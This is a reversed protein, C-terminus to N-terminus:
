KRSKETPPSGISPDHRTSFPATKSTVHPTDVVQNAAPGLEVPRTRLFARTFAAASACAYKTWADSRKLGVIDSIGRIALMPSRGRVARYVGASEMEIARLDRATLLWPILLEPDKVLRDSAAIPGATYAAAYPASGAGHHYALKDRLERQWDPPGYIQGESEWVVSPPLPLDATWSGLEDERGALNTVFAALAKDIPGGTVSYTPAQSIRRAEVTFDHIRTSVVVDGLKVDDSPPAGAIGVILVLRPALDDILDRAADQAEGNGQEVLRSVAIRYRKGDGADAYRLMYERNTGKHSGAKDPLAALVARFEDDRITLIGVDVKPTIAPYTTPTSPQTATAGVESPGSATITSAAVGYRRRVAELQIPSRVRCVGADDRVVGILELVAVDDDSRSFSVREDAALRRLIRNLGRDHVAHFVHPLNRDEVRVVQDVIDDITGGAALKEAVLQTFYPHGGTARHVEAARAALAPSGGAGLLEAVHDPTLDGLYMSDAVNRLPSNGRVALHMMEEGGAIIFALRQFAPMVFRDTFVSRVTAALWRATSDPLAGIEDILLGLRTPTSEAAVRLVRLLDAGDNAGPRGLQDAIREAVFRTCEKEGAGTAGQLNLFLLEYHKGFEQRARLMLTTKGNQRGGLILGVANGSRLWGDVRRLEADRGVFLPSDPALPGRYVFSM